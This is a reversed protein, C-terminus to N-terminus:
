RWPSPRDRSNGSIATPEVAPAGSPAATAWNRNERPTGGPAIICIAAARSSSCRTIYVRTHCRGDTPSGFAFAVLLAPPKPDGVSPRQWVRTYMVLHLLLLAAAIQMM